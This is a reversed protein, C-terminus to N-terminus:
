KGSNVITVTIYHQLITICKLQYFNKRFGGRYTIKLNLNMDKEIGSLIITFNDECSQYFYIPETPKDCFSKNSNSKAIFIQSCNTSAM